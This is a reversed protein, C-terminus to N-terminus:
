NITSVCGHFDRNMKEGEDGETEKWSEISFLLVMLNRSLCKLVAKILIDSVAITMRISQLPDTM